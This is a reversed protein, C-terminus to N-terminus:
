PVRPSSLVSGPLRDKRRPERYDERHNKRRTGGQGHDKIRFSRSCHSNRAVGFPLFDIRVKEMPFPIDRSVVKEVEVPTEKFVVKEVPVDRYVIKEM